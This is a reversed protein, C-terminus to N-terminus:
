TSRNSALDDSAGIRTFIQDIPGIQAADAPVFSGTHAMLVIHAVQRMYTSKGGMNPGTLLMLRHKHDLRTHNATFHRVQQEVVPHRGNEIHIVPYDAFEPCVFGREAATAAFTSLVDLAAAAKAAKQLQPLTTQI